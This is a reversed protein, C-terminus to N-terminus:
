PRPVPGCTDEVLRNVPTRARPKHRTRSQNPLGLLGHSATPFRVPPGGEGGGASRGRTGDAPPYAPGSRMRDAADSVSAPVRGSPKGVSM